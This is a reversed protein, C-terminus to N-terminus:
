FPLLFKSSHYFEISLSLAALSKHFKGVLNFFFYTKILLTATQLFATAEM